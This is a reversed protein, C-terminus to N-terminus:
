CISQISSFPLGTDAGELKISQPRIRDLGGGFTGVWINGERDEMLSLIGQHSAPVTEFGSQTRRFLGSFSTGIWVAGEHDELLVTVQTGSNDSRFQGYDELRGGADSKFLRNGSCIWMGGDRAPALRMPLADVQCLQKLVGDQFIGAKGSKGWWIRGQNDTALACLDPGAPLGQSAGIETIKGERIEFIAGGRYALLLSGVANEALGNPILEPLGKVYAHSDGGNLYVVAGRDMALWLGGHRGSNMVIIGRNPLAIVNTLSFPEFRIGDFRALGSPTGIWLYGDATQAIGEVSNDPLNDESQWDRLLWASSTSAAWGPFALLLLLGALANVRIMLVLMTSPSVRADAVRCAFGSPAM